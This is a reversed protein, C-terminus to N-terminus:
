QALRGGIKAHVGCTDCVACVRYAGCFKMTAVGGACHPCRVQLKCLERADRQAKNKAPGWGRPAPPPTHPGRNKPNTM